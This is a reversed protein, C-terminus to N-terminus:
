KGGNKITSIITRIKNEDKFGDTEVSSSFDVGFPRVAEIANLVNGSDLGGALFFEKSLDASRIVNLDAAQGTGGVMGKVYSDILLKDCSLKAAVEIDESREARVAKWIEGDFSKKLSGIYEEDENGHLQIVDLKECYHKTINEIPEDVFVGVRKIDKDLRSELECFVEPTVSRRFGASLIFGAYDPRYRNLYMIDEARRMGCIKIKVMNYAM